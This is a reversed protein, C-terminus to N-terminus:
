GEARSEIHRTGGCGPGGVAKANFSRGQSSTDNASRIGTATARKKTASTTPPIKRVTVETKPQYVKFVVMSTLQNNHRPIMRKRFEIKSAQIRM